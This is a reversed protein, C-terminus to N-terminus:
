ERTFVLALGCLLIFFAAAEDVLADTYQYKISAFFASLGVYTNKEKLRAIM